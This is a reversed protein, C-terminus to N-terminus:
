SRDTSAPREAGARGAEIRAARRVAYAPSLASTVILITAGLVLWFFIAMVIGIGGYYKSYWNLWNTFLNSSLLRLVLLGLTALIAGPMADRITIRSHLLFVPSWALFGVCALVWLPAIAWELWNMDGKLLASEVVYLLCGALFLLLWVLYRARDVLGKTPPVGWIRGYVLQLTRGIGLGFTIVSAVAVLTATIQHGGAGQLVERVLGATDGKLHLRHILRTALGTPSSSAYTAMAIVAPLLTVFFYAALLLGFLQGDAERYRGFWGLAVGTASAKNQRDAWAQAKDTYQETWAFARTGLDVARDSFSRPTGSPESPEPPGPHEPESM